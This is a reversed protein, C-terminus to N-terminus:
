IIREDYNRQWIPQGPTNRFINIQKAVNMKFYGMIKPLLMKRRQYADPPQQPLPLEHIAGVDHIAGVNRTNNNDDNIIMIGHIHNPMIVHEDLSVNPFHNPIELWCQQAIIGWDNLIIEGDEIEGFM